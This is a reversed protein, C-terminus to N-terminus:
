PEQCEIVKTKWLEPHEDHLISTRMAQHAIELVNNIEKDDGKIVLYKKNDQEHIKADLGRDTLGISIYKEM